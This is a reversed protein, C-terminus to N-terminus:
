WNPIEIKQRYKVTLFKTLIDTLHDVDAHFSLYRM